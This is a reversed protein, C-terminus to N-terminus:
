TPEISFRVHVMEGDTSTTVEFGSHAFVDLMDHNGFLTEAIFTTIGNVRAAQALHGLLLTAIGRHQLEDAVVFAVEAEATGAIREYRGVAVLQGGVEAVLALRDKYDVHTFRDIELESLRPHVFFFRHYISLMSLHEHFEALRSGDDPRIPRLLITLGDRTQVQCSLEGPWTEPQSSVVAPGGEPNQGRGGHMLRPACVSPCGIGLAHGSIPWPRPRRPGVVGSWRLGRPAGPRDCGVIRTRRISRRSGLAARAGSGGRAAGAGSGGGRRPLSAPLFRDSPVAVRQIAEVSASRLHAEAIAWRLALASELSGDIGVVIRSDFTQYPIEDDDAHVVAVPCHAHQLCQDSVSGLLLEGFGGLGRSGVVLLDASRSAEALVLAAVEDVAEGRVLVSPHRTTALAVADDIIAEGASIESGEATYWPPVENEHGSQAHLIRLSWGHRKAEDAAWKLALRSTASGDVGVVVCGEHSRGGSGRTM